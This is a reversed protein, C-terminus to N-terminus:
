DGVYRRSERRVNGHHEAQHGHRQTQQEIRVRKVEADERHEGGGNLAKSQRRRADSFGCQQPLHGRAERYTRERRRRKQYGSETFDLQACM